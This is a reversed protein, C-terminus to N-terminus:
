RLCARTTFWRGGAELAAMGCCQSPGRGKAQTWAVASCDERGLEARVPLVQQSARVVLRQQQPLDEALAAVQEREFPVGVCHELGM